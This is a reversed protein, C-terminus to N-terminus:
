SSIANIADRGQSVGEREASEAPKYTINAIRKKTSPHEIGLDSYGISNLHDEGLGWKALQIGMNQEPFWGPCPM